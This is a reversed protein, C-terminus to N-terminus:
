GINKQYDDHISTAAIAGDSTATVVQRLSTNRCDGIAYLHSVQTEMRNDTLIIGKEDKVESINVFSSTAEEGVYLFLGSILLTKEEKTENNEVVISSISNEGKASIVHYPALIETNKREKFERVVSEQARFERRRAILTVHSCIDSLYTAEEFAANGAGIVAVDKGQYFSGDCIACRSIGRKRFTEEGPIPFPKEGLGNALIVYYFDKSGKSTSVTFSGDENRKVEKVDQYIPRISFKDLQEELKMGLDPGSVSPIGAYNEIKETKNVKGGILEREYCVPTMGYRKLYIAASVGSPGLGIIAVEKKDM